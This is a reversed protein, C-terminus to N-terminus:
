SSAETRVRQGEELRHVGATVVVTGADIGDVLVDNDDFSTVRVPVLRM